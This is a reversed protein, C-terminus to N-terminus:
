WLLQGLVGALKRKRVSQSPKRAATFDDKASVLQRVHQPVMNVFTSNYSELFPQAPITEQSVRKMMGILRAIGPISLHNGNKAEHPQRWECSMGLHPIEARLSRISLNDDGMLIVRKPELKMDAASKMVDHLESIIQASAKRAALDLDVLSPSGHQWRPFLPLLSDDDPTLEISMDERENLWLALEEPQTNLREAAGILIDYSGSTIHATHVMKGNRFFSVGITERDVDVLVMSEDREAPALNGAAAAHSSMLVDVEIDLTRLCDLISRTTDQEGLVLHANLQLKEAKKGTPDSTKRDNDLVYSIPVMDVTAYRPWFGDRSVRNLVQKVHKRSVVTRNSKFPRGNPHTSITSSSQRSATAGYPLCVIFKSYDFQAGGGMREWCTQIAQEVDPMFIDEDAPPAPFFARRVRLPMVHGMRDAHVISTVVWNRGFSIGGLINEYSLEDVQEFYGRVRAAMEAEGTQIVAELPVSLAM